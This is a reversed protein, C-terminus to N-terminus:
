CHLMVTEKGVANMVLGDAANMVLGDAAQVWRTRRTEKALGKSVLPEVVPQM